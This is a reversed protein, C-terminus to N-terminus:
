RRTTASSTEGCTALEAGGAAALSTRCSPRRPVARRGDLRLPDSRNRRLAGSALGTERRSCGRRCALDVGIGVGGIWVIRGRPM